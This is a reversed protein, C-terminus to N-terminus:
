REDSHYDEHPSRMIAHQKAAQHRHPAAAVAACMRTHPQFHRPRAGSPSHRRTSTRRTSTCSRPNRGWPRAWPRSLAQVPHQPACPERGCPWIICLKLLSHWTSCMPSWGQTCSSCVHSSDSVTQGAHVCIPIYASMWFSVGLARRCFSKTSGGLHHIPCLGPEFHSVFDVIVHLAAENCRPSENLPAAHSTATSFPLTM